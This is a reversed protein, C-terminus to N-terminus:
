RPPRWHGFRGTLPRMVLGNVALLLAVTLVIWAMATATDLNVRALALGEGIGAGAGLVEAMVAVKWSLGFAAALAPALHGAVHPVVVDRLVGFRGARYARAMEVLQPDVTHSGELAALFPISVATLTVILVPTAPTSGFWLLALVVWAIAPVGLLITAVPRLVVECIRMAGASLGLALGLAAALLFGALAHLGTRLAASALTGDQAMRAMASATERLSPMVLEGYQLHVAQWGILLLGVAVVLGAAAEVRRRLSRGLPRDGGPATSTSSM